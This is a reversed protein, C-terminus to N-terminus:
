QSLGTGTGKTLTNPVLNSVRFPHGALVQGADDNLIMRDTGSVRPTGMLFAKVLANTLWGLAGRGANQGEVAAMLSVITAWSPAGGNDGHPVTLVGPAGIIGQPELATGAGAIAAADLGRAVEARLDDRFIQEIGPDGQVIMRRTYRVNATLHRYSLTVADFRPTSEDAAFDEDVWQATAGEALRPISADRRLGPLVTAGLGIVQTEARLAEIFAGSLHDVGTLAGGVLEASTLLDRRALAFSPVYFGQSQRQAKTAIEESAERELGADRWDGTVAARIARAVSYGAVAQAERRSLDLHLPNALTRQGGGMADGMADLLRGRFEMVSIGDRIADQAVQPAAPCTEAFAAGIRAIESARTREAEAPNPTNTRPQAPVAARQGAPAPASAPTNPTTM